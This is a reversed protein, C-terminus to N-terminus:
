YTIDMITNSLDIRVENADKIYKYLDKESNGDKVFYEEEGEDNTRSNIKEAVCELIADGTALNVIGYKSDKYVVIGDDGNTNVGKIIVVSNINDRENGKCGLADYEIDVIVNGEEDIVGYQENKVVAYMVPEYNLIFLKDYKLSIKGDGENTIVGYRGTDDSVIFDTTYEDYEMSKYKNGIITKFDTDVVGYKGNKSVVLMNQLVLKSNTYTEDIVVSSNEELKAKYDEILSTITSINVIAEKEQYSVELYFIKALDEISIYIEDEYNILKNKLEYYQKEVISDESTKYIIKEETSFGIIEKNAEVYCNEKSETAEGKYEGNYYKYGMKQTIKELAIYKVGSDDSATLMDTNTNDIYVTYTKDTDDVPTATKMIAILLVVVILAIISFILLIGVTKKASSEKKNNYNNNEELLNM